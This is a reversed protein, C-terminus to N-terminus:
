SQGAAGAAFPGTIELPQERNVKWAEYLAIALIVLGMPSQFGAIFPLALLFGLVFALAVLVRAPSLDAQAAAPGSSGASAPPQVSGAAASSAQVREAERKQFAALVPPVYTSCISLYCLGMALAQYRWGGRGRSGARVAFGVLLGVVIAILGFRYGTLAGIGYYLGAGVVAALVGLVLGRLLGPVHSGARVAAANDKCTGCLVKQNAEFYWSLPAKCIACRMDTTGAEGQDATDFQLGRTSPESM